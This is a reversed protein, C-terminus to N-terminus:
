LGCVRDLKDLAANRRFNVEQEGTPTPTTIPTTKANHQTPTPYLGIDTSVERYSLWRKKELPACGNKKCERCYTAYASEICRREYASNDRDIRPQICKWALVLTKEEFNPVVESVSYTVIARFFKGLEEDNFEDIFPQIADHYIMVGPKEAM